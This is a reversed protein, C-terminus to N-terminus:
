QREEAYDQQGTYWLCAPLLGTGHLSIGQVICTGGSAAVDWLIRQQLQGDRWPRGVRPRGFPPSQNPSGHVAAYATKLGLHVGHRKPGLISCKLDHIRVVAIWVFLADPM